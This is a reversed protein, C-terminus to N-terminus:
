PQNSGLQSSSSRTIVTYTVMAIPIVLFTVKVLCLQSSKLQSSSSGSNLSFMVKYLHSSLYKALCPFCGTGGKNTLNFVVSLLHTNQYQALCLSCGM